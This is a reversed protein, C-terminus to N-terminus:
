PATPWRNAASPARDHAIKQVPDAASQDPQLHRAREFGEIVCQLLQVFAFNGGDLGDVRQQALFVGRPFGTPDVNRQAGGLEQGGLGKFGEVEAEQWREVPLPDGGQGLEFEDAPGLDNVEKPRRPGALRMQGRSEANGGDLGALADIARGQGIQNCRQALGLPLAPQGLLDAEIGPGRQQDDVLDAVEGDGGTAGIQEELEDVGAVFFPREGNTEFLHRCM